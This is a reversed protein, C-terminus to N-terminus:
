EERHIQGIQVLTDLNFLGIGALPALSSPDPEQLPTPTPQTGTPESHTKRSERQALALAEDKTPKDSAVTDQGTGGGREPPLWEHARISRREKRRMPAGNRYTLARMRFSMQTHAWRNPPVLRGFDEGSSLSIARVLRADRISCYCNLSSGILSYDSAIRPNTYRWRGVKVYPRVGKKRNGRIVSRITKYLVLNCEGAVDRDADPIPARLFLGNPSNMTAVLSSLPAGMSLAETRDSNHKVIVAELARVLDSLRIQLRVATKEPNNRQTDTPGSGYTSPSCQMAARTMQGFVREIGDRSWWARVPGFNVACGIVDILNDIVDIATNSWGNDMRLISFGQARLQELIQNPFVKGNMGIALGCGTVRAALPVLACEITELVSDSSPTKELAIIVGLILELREEFLLGIHWRPLPVDIDVGFSNTITIVSAADIKHFDLQAATFPRVPTFVPHVGRGITNRMAANAGARAKMWRMEHSHLLTNCYRRLSELGENQTNLPWQFDTLGRDKLWTIVKGHLNEISIRAHQEKRKQTSPLYEDLIFKELGPHQELLNTFAGAYGASGDGRVHIVPATRTYPKIRLGPLLARHGYIRGDPAVTQCRQLLRSLQQRRLGTTREITSLATGQEYLRLAASRNMVDTRIGEEFGSLDLAPWEALPIRLM